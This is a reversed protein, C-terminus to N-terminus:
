ITNLIIPSKILIPITLLFDGSFIYGYGILLTLFSELIDPCATNFILMKSTTYTFM